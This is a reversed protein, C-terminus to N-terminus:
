QKTKAIAEAMVRARGRRNVTPKKARIEVNSGLALIAQVLRDMSFGSFHGRLLKSLDPQAIGTLAAAKRQSLGKIEILKALRFLFSRKSSATTEM